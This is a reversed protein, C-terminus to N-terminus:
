FAFFRYTGSLLRRGNGMDSLLANRIQYQIDSLLLRFLIFQMSYM